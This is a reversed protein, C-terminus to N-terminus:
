PRDDSSSEVESKLRKQLASSCNLGASLLVMANVAGTVLSATFGGLAGIKMGIVLGLLPYFIFLFEWGLRQDSLPNRLSEIHANDILARRLGWVCGDLFGMFGAIAIWIPNGVLATALSGALLGLLSGSAVGGALWKVWSLVPSPRIASGYTHYSNVDIPVRPRYFECREDPVL